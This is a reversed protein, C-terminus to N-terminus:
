RGTLEFNDLNNLLQAQSNHTYTGQSINSISIYTAYNGGGSAGTTNRLKLEFVLLDGIKVDKFFKAKTKKKIATVKQVESKLIM